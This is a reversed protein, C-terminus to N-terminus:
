RMGTQLSLLLEISLLITPIGFLVAGAIAFVDLSKRDDAFLGWIGIGGVAIWLFPFYAWVTAPLGLAPAIMQGAIAVISIGVAIYGFKSSLREKPLPRYSLGEDDIDPVEISMFDDKDTLERM